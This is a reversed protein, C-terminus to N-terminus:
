TVPCATGHIIDLFSLVNHFPSNILRGKLKSSYLAKSPINLSVFAERLLQPNNSTLSNGFNDKNYYYNNSKDIIIVDGIKYEGTIGYKRFFEEGKFYRFIRIVIKKIWIPFRKVCKILLKTLRLRKEKLKKIGDAKRARRENIEEFNNEMRIHEYEWSALLLNKILKNSGKIHKHDTSSILQIALDSYSKTQFSILKKLNSSDVETVLPNSYKKVWDMIADINRMETTSYGPFVYSIPDGDKFMFFTPLQTVTNMTFYEKNFVKQTQSADYNIKEYM